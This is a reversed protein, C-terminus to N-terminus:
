DHEIRHAILDEGGDRALAREAIARRDLDRRTGAELVREDCAHNGRARTRQEGRVQARERREHWTQTFHAAAPGGPEVESVEGRTPDIRKERGSDGAPIEGRAHQEDMFGAPSDA